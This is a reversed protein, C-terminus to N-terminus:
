LPTQVAGIFKVMRVTEIAVGDRENAVRGRDHFGLRKLVPQAIRSADTEVRDFGAHATDEEIAAVLMRAVGRRHHRPDVYLLDLTNGKRTAYGIPDGGEEVVFGADAAQLRPAVQDPTAFRLWSAVQDDDYALPGSISISARTVLALSNTDGPQLRRLQM